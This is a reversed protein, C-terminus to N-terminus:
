KLLDNMCNKANQRSIALLGHKGKETAFGYKFGAQRVMLRTSFCHAGYPYAFCSFSHGLKKELLQKSKSIERWASLMGIRPLMPHSLTQAGIDVLPHNDLVTLDNWDLMRPASLAEQRIGNAELLQSFLSAINNSSKGKLATRICYYQSMQDELGFCDNFHKRPIRIRPSHRILDALLYEYPVFKGSIFGVSVFLLVKVGLREIHPLVVELFDKFGDDFTLSVKNITTSSERGTPFPLEDWNAINGELASLLNTFQEYSVASDADPGFPPISHNTKLVRHFYLFTKAM